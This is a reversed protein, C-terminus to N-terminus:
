NPLVVVEGAKWGPTVVVADENSPGLVIPRRSKKGWQGVVWAAAQDGDRTVARVPITLVGPLRLCKLRAEVSLNPELALGM